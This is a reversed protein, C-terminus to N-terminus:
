FLSAYLLFSGPRVSSLHTVPKPAMEKKTWLPFCIFNNMYANEGRAWTIETHVQAGTHTHGNKRWSGVTESKEKGLEYKVRKCGNEVM